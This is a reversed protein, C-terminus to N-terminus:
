EVKIVKGNSFDVMKEKSQRKHYLHKPNATDPTYMSPLIAEASQTHSIEPAQAQRGRGEQQSDKYGSEIQTAVQKFM